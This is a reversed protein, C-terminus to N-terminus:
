QLPIVADHSCRGTLEDEAGALGHDPHHSLATLTAHSSRPALPLNASPINQDEVTRPDLSGPLFCGFNVIHCCFERPTNQPSIDILTEGRQCPPHTTTRGSYPIGVKGVVFM